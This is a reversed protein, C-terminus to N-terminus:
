STSRKGEGRPKFAQGGHVCCYKIEYYKLSESLHRDIGKKRAAAITRADRRWLEVFKEKKYRGIKKELELFSPFTEGLVFEVHCDVPEAALALSPWLEQQDASEVGESEIEMEVEDVFELEELSYLELEEM